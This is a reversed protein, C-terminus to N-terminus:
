RFTPWSGLHARVLVQHMAAAAGDCRRCPEFQTEPQGAFRHPVGNPFGAYFGIPVRKSGKCDRCFPSKTAERVKAVQLM